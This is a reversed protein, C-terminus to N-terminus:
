GCHSVKTKIQWIHCHSQPVCTCASCLFFLYKSLYQWSIRWFTPVTTRSTVSGLVTNRWSRWGASWSKSFVRKSERKQFMLCSSYRKRFDREMTLWQRLRDPKLIEVDLVAATRKVFFLFGSGILNTKWDVVTESRLSYLYKPTM